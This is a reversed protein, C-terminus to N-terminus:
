HRVKYDLQQVETSLLARNYIRIEDIVGNFYYPYNSDENRGFFLNTENLTFNTSAKTSSVLRGNLYLKSYTGNYTYTLTYWKNTLIHKSFATSGSATAQGDGYTGYPNQLSDIVPEFCGEYNYYYNDDYGLLYRGYDADNHGKNIIRNAHCIGQYYGKTKFFAFLTIKAPNLSKSNAVEMYSSVGDFKYASNIKGNEGKVPQATSYIVDNHHGSYDKTDANFPFWAVLGKSLTSDTTLDVIADDVNSTQLAAPQSDNKKCSFL